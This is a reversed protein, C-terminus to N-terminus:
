SLMKALKIGPFNNTSKKEIYGLLLKKKKKKELRFFILNLDKNKVHKISHSHTLKM